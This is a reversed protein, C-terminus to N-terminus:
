LAPLGVRSPRGVRAVGTDQLANRQPSNHAPVHGTNAAATRAPPSPSRGRWSPTACRSPRRTRAPSAASCGPNGRRDQRNDRRHADGGVAPMRALCPLHPSARTAAAGGSRPLAPPPRRGCQGRHRSRRAADQRVGQRRPGDPRARGHADQARVRRRACLKQRVHQGPMRVGARRPALRDQGREAAALRSGAPIAALRECRCLARKRMSILM